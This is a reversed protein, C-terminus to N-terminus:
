KKSLKQNALKKTCKWIVKENLMQITGKRTHICRKSCPRAMYAADKM